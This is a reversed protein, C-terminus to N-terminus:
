SLEMGEPNQVAINCVVLLSCRFDNKDMFYWCPFSLGSPIANNYFFCLPRIQFGSLTVYINCVLRGGRHPNQDLIPMKNAVIIGDRRSKSRRHQLCRIFWM